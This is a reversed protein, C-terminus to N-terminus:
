WGEIQNIIRGDKIHIIRDAHRAKEADHTVMIITLGKEKNLWTLLRMIEEGTKSDLNGTPEDGLIISPNNILARAVAVRQQEGGSLETPRHNARQGLGVAQLMSEARRSREDKPVGAFILPLEVNQLATLTPILNYSQFIFGIRERRYKALENEDLSAIDLGDVIVKGSDFRDLGGILNLLTSKGSGSTGMISVFEGHTISISVSDLATVLVEGLSYRRTLDTVVVAKAM